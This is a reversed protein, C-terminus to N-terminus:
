RTELVHTYGIYPCRCVDFTCKRPGEFLKVDGKFLNGLYWEGGHCRHVDGLPNMRVYAKGALCYKGKFSPLGNIILSEFNPEYIRGLQRNDEHDAISEKENQSSKIYFLIKDKEKSSYANPYTRNFFRKLKRFIPLNPIYQSLYCSYTGRFVKPRLIIGKSKFYSYDAAFKYLLPPYMVYTAFVVFGKAKLFNFKDIFDNVLGLRKREQINASCNLYRVKKPDINKAFLYVDKHSLNTNIGIMHNKTLEECLKVFNPYLFPEGGSFDFLWTVGLHNFSDVIRKIDGVGRFTTKISRGVFCYSCNFNCFYSIHWHVETDVKM